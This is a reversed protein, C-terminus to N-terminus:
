VPKVGRREWIERAVPHHQEWTANHEGGFEPTTKEAMARTEAVEVATLHRFPSGKKPVWEDGVYEGENM